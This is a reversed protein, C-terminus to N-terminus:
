FYALVDPKWHCLNSKRTNNIKNTQSVSTTTADAIVTVGVSNEM